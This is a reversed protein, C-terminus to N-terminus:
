SPIVSHDLKHSCLLLFAVDLIQEEGGGEGRSSTLQGLSVEGLSM